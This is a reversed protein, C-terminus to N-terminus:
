REHPEQIEPYSAKAYREEKIINRLNLLTYYPIDVVALNALGAPLNGGPVSDSQYIIKVPGSESPQFLWITNMVPIRVRSNHQPMYDPKGIITITVSLSKRDQTIVSYAINDRDVAPWGAHLVFYTYREFISTKKILKAEICNHMWRTYSSTDDFAAVLSSLRAGKIYMIGKFEKFDSGPAKRTYVEIGAEKKQLIWDNQIPASLALTCLFLEIVILFSYISRM